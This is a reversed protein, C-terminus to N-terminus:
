LSTHTSTETSVSQQCAYVTSGIPISVERIRIQVEMNLVIKQGSLIRMSKRLFFTYLVSERSDIRFVSVLDRGWITFEYLSLRKIVSVARHDPSDRIGILHM